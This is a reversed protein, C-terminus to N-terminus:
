SLHSLERCGYLEEFPTGQLGIQVQYDQLWFVIRKINDICYYQVAWSEDDSQQVSIVCERSLDELSDAYATVM